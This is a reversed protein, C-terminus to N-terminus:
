DEEWDEDYNDEKFYEKEKEHCFDLIMKLAANSPAAEIFRLGVSLFNFCEEKYDWRLFGLSYCARTVFEMQGDKNCTLTPEFDEWKVIDFERRDPDDEVNGIRSISRIQINDVIPTYNM